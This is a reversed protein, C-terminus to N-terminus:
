ADSGCPKTAHRRRSASDSSSSAVIQDVSPVAALAATPQLVLDFARSPDVPFGRLVGGGRSAFAELAATDIEILSLHRRLQRPVTQVAARRVAQPDIRPALAQVSPRAADPLFVPAPADRGATGLPLTTAMVVFAKAFTQAALM